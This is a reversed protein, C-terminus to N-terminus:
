PSGKASGHDDHHDLLERVRAAHYRKGHALTEFWSAIEAFGEAHATRAMTPYSEREDAADATLVAMLNDDTAGVPLGTAPDGVLRLYDLHGQACLRESDALERMADAADPYGEIEAIQAYYDLLVVAQAERAFAQLLHQHTSSGRLDVM